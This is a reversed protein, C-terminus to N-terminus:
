FTAALSIPVAWVWRQVPRLPTPFLSYPVSSVLLRNGTVQERKGRMAHLAPPQLARLLLTVLGSTLQLPRSLGALSHSLWTLSFWASEFRTGSYLPVRSIRRSDALVM